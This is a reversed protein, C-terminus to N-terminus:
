KVEEQRPKYEQNILARAQEGSNSLAPRTVVLITGAPASTANKSIEKKQQATTTALKREAGISIIFENCNSCRIHKLNNLDQYQFKAPAECLPCQLDHISNM